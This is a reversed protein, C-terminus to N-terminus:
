EVETWERKKKSKSDLKFTEFGDSSFERLQSGFFISFRVPVRNSFKPISRKSDTKSPRRRRPQCRATWTWRIGIAPKVGYVFDLSVVAM